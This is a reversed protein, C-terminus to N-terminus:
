VLGSTPSVQWKMFDPNSYSLFLEYPSPKLFLTYSYILCIDSTIPDLFAPICFIYEIM